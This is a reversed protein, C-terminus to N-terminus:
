TSLYCKTTLLTKLDVFQVGEIYKKRRSYALVECEFAKAIDAVRM